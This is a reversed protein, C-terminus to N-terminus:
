IRGEWEFLLREINWAAYIPSIYQSIYFFHASMPCSFCDAINSSGRGEKM